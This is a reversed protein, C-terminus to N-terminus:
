VSIGNVRFTHVDKQIKNETLNYYTSCAHWDLIFKLKRLRGELKFSRLYQSCDHAPTIIGPPPVVYLPVIESKDIYWSRLRILGTYLTFGVCIMDQLNVLM